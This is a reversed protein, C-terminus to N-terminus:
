LAVCCHLTQELSSLSELKLVLDQLQSYPQVSAVDPVLFNGLSTVRDANCRAFATARDTACSYFRIEAAAAADHTATSM